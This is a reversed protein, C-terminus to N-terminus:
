RLVERIKTTIADALDNIAQQGSFTGGYINITVQPGGAGAFNMAHFDQHFLVIEGWIDDLRNKSDNIAGWIDVLHPLQPLYTLLTGFIGGGAQEGLYMMSYRTNHEIANLSTEQHMNQFVSIVGTVASVVGTIASIMPAIGSSIASGLIGGAGGTTDGAGSVEGSGVDPGVENTGGPLGSGQPGEGSGVGVSPIGGLGIKALVGGLSTALDIHKLITVELQKFAYGILQELIEKEITKLIGMFVGSWSNGDVINDAIGKSVQGFANKFDNGLAVALDGLGTTSFKLDEMKQKIGALAIVQATADTGTQTAYAIEAQLMQAEVTLIEGMPAHVAVLKQIVKDYESLVLPLDTASLKTLTTSVKGWALQVEDLTSRNSDLVVNLAGIAKTQAAGSDSATIGLTHLADNLKIQAYYATALDDPLRKVMGNQQYDSDIATQISSAKEAGTIYKDWAKEFSDAIQRNSDDLKKQGELMQSTLTAMNIKDLVDPAIAAGAAMDDFFQKMSADIGIIEKVQDPFKDTMASIKIATQYFADTDAFAKAKDRMGELATIWENLDALPKGTLSSALSQAKGIESEITGLTATAAKGGEGLKDVYAQYTQPFSNFLDVVSNHFNTEATVMADMAAKGDAAWQKQQSNSRDLADNYEKSQDIYAQQAQKQQILADRQAILGSIDKHDAMWGFQAEATSSAQGLHNIQDTLEKIQQTLSDDKKAFIETLAKLSDTVIPAFTASLSEKLHDWAISLLEAQQHAAILKAVGESDLQGGLETVKQRLADYNALLPELQVASRGMIEHAKAIRDGAEPIDALKQLLGLLAEGSNDSWIGMEHLQDVIKKGSGTSNDLADALRMSTRALTDINIGVVGAMEGLQKTDEFSLNLKEALNQTAQAAAGEELVLETLKEGFEFAAAGMAVLGISVPGISEVIGRLADIPHAIFGSISEGFHEFMGGIGEAHAGTKDLLDGVTGMSSVFDGIDAGVRAILDGLSAM